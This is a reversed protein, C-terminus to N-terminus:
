RVPSQEDLARASAASEVLRSGLWWPVFQAAALLLAVLVLVVRMWGLSRDLDDRSSVALERAEEAAIAYDDLLLATDDLAGSSDEIDAILADVQEHLDDRGGALGGLDDSVTRLDDSLPDLAARLEGVAEPFSVDPDYDPGFPLASLAGLAGDVTGGLSQVTELAVDVDDFTSPLTEALSATSDAVGTVDDITADVTGLTATVTVLGDDLTAVMQDAVEITEALSTAADEGIALSRDANRELDGLFRWGVISGVVAVVVGLVAILQM